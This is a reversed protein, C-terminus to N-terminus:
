KLIEKKGRQNIANPPLYKGEADQILSDKRFVLKELENEKYFLFIEYVKELSEEKFRSSNILYTIYDREMHNIRDFYFKNYVFKNM